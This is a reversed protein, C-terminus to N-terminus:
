ANHEVKRQHEILRDDVGLTGKIVGDVICRPKLFGKPLERRIGSQSDLKRFFLEGPHTLNYVANDIILGESITTFLHSLFTPCVDSLTSKPRHVIQHPLVILKSSSIYLGLLPFLPFQMCAIM